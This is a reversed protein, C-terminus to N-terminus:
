KLAECTNESYKHEFQNYKSDFKIVICGEMVKNTRPDIVEKSALLKEAVLTDIDLYYPETESLKSTNKSSWREATKEMTKTQQVYTKEKNEEILRIVQPTAIMIVIALIVLVAILEVLTFGNKKM